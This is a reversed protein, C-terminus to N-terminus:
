AARRAAQVTPEFRPEYDLSRIERNMATVTADSTTARARSVVPGIGQDLWASWPRSGPDGRARCLRRAAVM